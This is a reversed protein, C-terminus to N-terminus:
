KLLKNTFLAITDLKEKLDTEIQKLKDESLKNKTALLRQILLYASFNLNALELVGQNIKSVKIANRVSLSILEQNFPKDIFDYVGLKILRVVHERDAHGSIMIAPLSKYKSKIHELFEMGDMEPMKLDTMVLDPMREEICKMAEIGNEAHRVTLGESFEANLIDELMDRIMEEDDCILVDIKDLSSMHASRRKVTTDAAGGSETKAEDQEEDEDFFGFADGPADDKVAKDVSGRFRSIEKEIQECTKATDLVADMNDELLHVYEKLKDAGALLADSVSEDCEASGERIMGLLNEFVHALAALHDFKAAYGSGKITHAVRFLEGVIETDNPNKELVLLGAELDELLERAEQLFEGKIIQDIELNDM